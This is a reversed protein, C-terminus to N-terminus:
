RRIAPQGIRRYRVKVLPTLLTDDAVGTRSVAFHDLCQSWPRLRTKLYEKWEHCRHSESIRLASSSLLIDPAKRDQRREMKVGPLLQRFSYARQRMQRHLSMPNLRRIRSKFIAAHENM